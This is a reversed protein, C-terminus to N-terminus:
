ALSEAHGPEDRRDDLPSVPDIHSSSRVPRAAEPSCSSVCPKRGSRTASVRRWYRRSCSSWGHGVGGSAGIVSVRLVAGGCTSGARAGSGVVCARAVRGPRQISWQFGSSSVWHSVTPRGIARRLRLQDIKASNRPKTTHCSHDITATVSGSAPNSRLVPSIKQSMEIGLRTPAVSRMGYENRTGLNPPRLQVIMEAPRSSRGVIASATQTDFGSVGNPTSSAAAARAPKPPPLKALEIDFM